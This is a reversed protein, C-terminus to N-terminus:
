TVRLPNSRQRNSIKSGYEGFCKFYFQSNPHNSNHEELLYVHYPLKKEELWKRTLVFQEQRGIFRKKLAFADNVFRIRLYQQEKLNRLSRFNYFLRNYRRKSYTPLKDWYLKTKPTIPVYGTATVISDHYKNEEIRVTNFLKPMYFKEFHEKSDAYPSLKLLEKIYTYYAELIVDLSVFILPFLLIIVNILLFFIQFLMIIIYLPTYILFKFFGKYELTYCHWHYILSDPLKIYLYNKLKEYNNWSMDDLRNTIEIIKILPTSFANVEDLLFASFRYVIPFFFNRLLFLCFNLFVLMYKHYTIRPRDYHVWRLWRKFTILHEHHYQVYKAFTRSKMDSAACTWRYHADVYIKRYAVLYYRYYLIRHYLYDFVFYLSLFYWIAYLFDYLFYNRFVWFIYWWFVIHPGIWWFFKDLFVSLRTLYFYVITEITCVLFDFYTLVGFGSMVVGRRPMIKIGTIFLYIILRIEFYIQETVRFLIIKAFLYKYWILYDRIWIYVDKKFKDNYPKNRNTIKSFIRLHETNCFFLIIIDKPYYIYELFDNRKELFSYRIKEIKYLFKLRFSDKFRSYRKSYDEQLAWISDSTLGKDYFDIDKNLFSKLIYKLIKQSYNLESYELKRSYSELILFYEPINENVNNIIIKLCPNKLSVTIRSLFNTSKSYNKGSFVESGGNLIDSKSSLLLEEFKSLDRNNSTFSENFLIVNNSYIKLLRNKIYTYINKVLIHQKKIVYIFYIWKQSPTVKGLFYPRRSEIILEKLKMELDKSEDKFSNPDFVSPKELYTIKKFNQKLLLNLLNKLKIRVKNKSLLMLLKKRKIFNLSTFTCNQSFKYEHNYNFDIIKLINNNYENNYKTLLSYDLFFKNNININTNHGYYNFFLFNKLINKYKLNLIPKKPILNLELNMRLPHNFPNITLGNDIPSFGDIKTKLFAKSNDLKLTFPKGSNKRSEALRIFSHFNVGARIARERMLGLRYRYKKESQKWEKFNLYSVERNFTKMDLSPKFFFKAIAFNKIRDLNKKSTVKILTIYAGKKLSMNKQCVYTPNSVNYYPIFFRPVRVEKIKELLEEPLKNIDVDKEKLYKNIVTIREQYEALDRAILITPSEFMHGGVVNKYKEYFTTSM